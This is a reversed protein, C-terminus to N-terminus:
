HHSRVSHSRIVQVSFRKMMRQIGNASFVWTLIRRQTLLSTTEKMTEGFAEIAELASWRSQFDSWWERFEMPQSYEHQYGGKSSFIQIKRTTKQFSWYSRVSIVPVLYRQTMRKTGNAESLVWRACWRRQHSHRVSNIYGPLVFKFLNKLFLLIFYAVVMIQMHVIAKSQRFIFSKVINRVSLSVITYFLPHYNPIVSIIM